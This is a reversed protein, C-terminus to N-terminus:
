QAAEGTPTAAAALAAKAATHIDALIDIADHINISQGPASLAAIRQLAETSM